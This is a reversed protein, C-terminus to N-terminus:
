RAAVTPWSTQWSRCAWTGRNGREIPGDPAIGRRRRRGRAGSARRAPRAGARPSCGCAGRRQPAGGPLRPLAPRRGRLRLRTRTSRSRASSARGTSARWWTRCRPRSARRSCTRRTSAWSRRDCRACAGACRRRRIRLTATTRRGRAEASASLRMSLGALEQVPGDHLDGAIRRRERDSEDIARQMLRERERQASSGPSGPDLRDAGDAARPGCAHGGPGARLNLRARAPARRHELGAPLDRVAAAHRRATEIRTYVELLEGFQREFRNEPASLDSVEAVVGGQDLM